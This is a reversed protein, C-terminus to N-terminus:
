TVSLIIIGAFLAVTIGAFVGLTQVFLTVAKKKEGSLFMQVPESLFLYGMMGASLTFLSLFAVPALVTDPKDGAFHGVTNLILAVLGIYLSAAIANLFPNKSM